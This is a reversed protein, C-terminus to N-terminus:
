KTRFFLIERAKIEGVWREPALTWQEKPQPQNKSRIYNILLTNYDDIEQMPKGLKSAAYSNMAVRYYRTPNLTPAAVKRTALNVQYPLGALSQHMSPPLHTNLLDSQVSRLTYFRRTYIKELLAQVEKGTLEVVVLRNNYRLLYFVEKAYPEAALEADLRAPAWLSLEAGSADLQFSHLYQSLASPAYPDFTKATDWVALPTAFWRRMKQIDADFAGLFDRSAPFTYYASDPTSPKSTSDSANLYTLIRDYLTTDINKLYYQTAPDLLSDCVILSRNPQEKRWETIYTAVPALNHPQYRNNLPEFGFLSRPAIHVPPQQAHACLSVLLLLPLFPRM